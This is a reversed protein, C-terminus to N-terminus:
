NYLNHNHEYKTIVCPHRATTYQLCTHMVCMYSVVFILIQIQKVFIHKLAVYEQTQKRKRNTKLM